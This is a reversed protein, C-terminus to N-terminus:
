FRLQAQAGLVYGRNDESRYRHGVLDIRRAHLPNVEVSDPNILENDLLECRPSGTPCTPLDIGADAFSIVHDTRFVLEGFAAFTVHAGLKGRLAVRAAGELYSEINSIGPHRLPQVNMMTPDGDLVLAGDGALAFVEWLEGYNRGEFHAAIRAGLDLGIRNGTVRNNILYTEVGSSAGAVQGAGIHNAGFGPDDFLSAARSYIPVQWFAEFWGEVYRYRRDFSTWLRLQHLGSSVGASSQPEVPDFRMVRGIAFRIEAGLKWTPKTDDLAQNMPAFGLGARLELVGARDVSRFVLDGSPPTAPDRADYGAPPLIGDVFTSATAPNAGSALELEHHQGLVIPVAFSLWFGRFLGLELRPTVLHRRGRFVLERDRALPALPDATPDGVRERTLVASDLVFEYDADVHVIDEERGGGSAVVGAPNAYAASAAAPAVALVVALTRLVPVCTIVAGRRAGRPV